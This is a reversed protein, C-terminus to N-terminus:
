HEVEVAVCPLKSESVVKSACVLLLVCEPFTKAIHALSADQHKVSSSSSMRKAM